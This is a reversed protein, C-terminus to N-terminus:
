KLHENTLSQHFVDMSHFVTYSNFFFLSHRLTYCSLSVYKCYTILHHFCTAYIHQYSLLFLFDSLTFMPRYNGKVLLLLSCLIYMEKRKHKSM